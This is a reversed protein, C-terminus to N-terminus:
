NTIQDYVEAELLQVVSDREPKQGEGGGEDEETLSLGRSLYVYM